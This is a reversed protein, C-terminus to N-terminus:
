DALEKYFPDELCSGLFSSDVSKNSGYELISNNDKYNKERKFNRDTNNYIGFELKFNPKIVQKSSFIKKPITNKKSKMQFQVSKKGNNSDFASKQGLVAKNIKYKEVFIDNIKIKQENKKDKSKNKFYEDIFKKQESNLNNNGDNDIIIATKLNSKSKKFLECLEDLNSKPINRSGNEKKNENTEEYLNSDTESTPLVYNDDSDDFLRDQDIKLNQRITKSTFQKCIKKCTKRKQIDSPTELFPNQNVNIAKTMIKQKFNKNENKSTLSVFPASLKPMHKIRKKNKENLGTFLKNTDLSM